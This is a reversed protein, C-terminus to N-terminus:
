QISNYISRRFRTAPMKHHGIVSIDKDLAMAVAAADMGTLDCALACLDDLVESPGLDLKELLTPGDVRTLLERFTTSM